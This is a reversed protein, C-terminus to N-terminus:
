FSAQPTSKLTADLPAVGAPPEADHASGFAMEISLALSTRALRYPRFM